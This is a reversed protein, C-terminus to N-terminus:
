TQVNESNSFANYRGCTSKRHLRHLAPVAPIRTVRDVRYLLPKEDLEGGTIVLPIRQAPFLFPLLRRIM